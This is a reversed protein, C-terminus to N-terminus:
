HKPLMNLLDLLSDDSSNRKLKVNIASLEELPSRLQELVFFDIEPDCFARMRERLPLIFGQTTASGTKPVEVQFRNFNRYTDMKQKKKPHKRLKKLPPSRSKPPKNTLM